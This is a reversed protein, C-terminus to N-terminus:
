NQRELRKGYICLVIKKSEDDEGFIDIFITKVFKDLKEFLEKNSISQKFFKVIFSLHILEELLLNLQRETDDLLIKLFSNGM